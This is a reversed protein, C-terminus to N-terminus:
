MINGLKYNEFSQKLEETKLNNEHIRTKTNTEYEIVIQQKTSEFQNRLDDIVNQLDNIITEENLHKNIFEINQMQIFKVEKIIHSPTIDPENLTKQIKNLEIKIVELQQEQLQKKIAIEALERVKIGKNELYKHPYIDIDSYAMQFIENGIMEEIQKKKINYEQSIDIMTNNIENIKHEIEDCQKELKYKKIDKQNVNKTLEEIIIMLKDIEIHIIKDYDILLINIM